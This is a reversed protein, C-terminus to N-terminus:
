YLIMMKGVVDLGVMLIWVEEKGFFWKFLRILINGM